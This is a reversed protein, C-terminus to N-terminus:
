VRRNVKTGRVQDKSEQHSEYMETVMKRSQKPPRKQNDMQSHILERQSEAEKVLNVLDPRQQKNQLNQKLQQNQSHSPNLMQVPGVRQTRPQKYIEQLM